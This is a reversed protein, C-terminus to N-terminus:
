RTSDARFYENRAEFYCIQREAEEATVGYSSCIQEGLRARVGAIADLQAATLKKGPYSSSSFPSVELVFHTCAATQALQSLTVYLYRNLGHLRPEGTPEQHGAIPGVGILEVDRM